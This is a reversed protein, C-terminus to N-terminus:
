ITKLFRQMRTGQVFTAEANTLNFILEHHSEHLSFKVNSLSQLVRYNAGPLYIMDENPTKALNQFSSAWIQCNDFKQSDEKELSVM